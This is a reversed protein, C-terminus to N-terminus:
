KRESLEILINCVSKPSLFAVTHGFAGRRPVKDILDVGRKGLADLWGEIDQVRLCIHHIGNGRSALFKGVGSAPDTPTVLELKTSGLDFVAVEVKSAEVKERAACKIGFVEELTRICADLDSVAIGIHEVGDLKM